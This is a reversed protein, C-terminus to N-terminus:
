RAVETVAAPAAAQFRFPGWTLTGPALLAAALLLSRARMM